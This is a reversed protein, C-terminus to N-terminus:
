VCTIKGVPKKGSVPAGQCALWRKLQPFNLEEPHKGDLSAGPIDAETLLINYDLLELVNWFVTIKYIMNMEKGLVQPLM